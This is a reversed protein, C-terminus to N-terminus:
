LHLEESENIEFLFPSWRVVERPKEVKGGTKQVGIVGGGGAGVEM